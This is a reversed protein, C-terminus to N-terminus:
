RAVRVRETLSPSAVRLAHGQPLTPANSGNKSLALARHRIESASRLARSAGKAGM